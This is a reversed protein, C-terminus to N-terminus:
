IDFLGEDGLDDGVDGLEPEELVGSDDDDYGGYVGANFEEETLNGDDDADWEDYIGTDGFGTGFENEDIAADSNSDWDEYAEQALAPAAFLSLALATVTTLKSLNRM